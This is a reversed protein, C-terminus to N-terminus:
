TTRLQKRQYRDTFIAIPVLVLPLWEAVIPAFLSVIGIVVCAVTFVLGRVAAGRV